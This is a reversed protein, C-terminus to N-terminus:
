LWESEYDVVDYYYPNYYYGHDSFIATTQYVHNVRRTSLYYKSTLRHSTQNHVIYPDYYEIYETPQRNLRSKTMNNQLMRSTRLTPFVTATAM